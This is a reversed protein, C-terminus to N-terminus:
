ERVLSVKAVRAVRLLRLLVRALDDGLHLIVGGDLSLSLLVIDLLVLAVDDTSVLSGQLTVIM